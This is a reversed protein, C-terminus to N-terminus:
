VERYNNLLNDYCAICVSAPQSHSSDSKYPSRFFREFSKLPRHLFILLSITTAIAVDVPQVVVATADADDADDANDDTGQVKQGRPAIVSGVFGKAM